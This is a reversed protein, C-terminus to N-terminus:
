WPRVRGRFLLYAIVLCMLMFAFAATPWFYDEWTRRPKISKREYDLKPDAAM